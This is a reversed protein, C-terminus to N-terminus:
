GIWVDRERLARDKIRAQVQPGHDLLFDSSIDTLEQEKLLGIITFCIEEVLSLKAQPDSSLMLEVIADHITEGQMPLTSLARYMWKYYPMYRRNLLFM